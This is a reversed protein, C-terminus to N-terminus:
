AVLIAYSNIGREKENVNDHNGNNKTVRKKHIFRDKKEDLPHAEM